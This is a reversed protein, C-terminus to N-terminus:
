SKNPNLSEEKTDVKKVEEAPAEKKSEVEQLIQLSRQAIGGVKEVKRGL